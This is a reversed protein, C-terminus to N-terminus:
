NEKVKEYLKNIKNKTYDKLLNVKKAGDFLMECSQLERKLDITDNNDINAIQQKISSLKEEYEEILSNSLESSHEPMEKEVVKEVYMTDKYIYQVKNVYVTDVTNHKKINKNKKVEEIATTDLLNTNFNYFVIFNDQNQNCFQEEIINQVEKASNYVPYSIGSISISDNSNTNYFIHFKSKDKLIAEFANKDIHSKSTFLEKNLIVKNTFFDRRDKQMDELSYTDMLKEIKALTGNSFEFTYLSNLNNINQIKADPILIKNCKTKHIYFLEYINSSVKNSNIGICSDQISVTIVIEAEDSQNCGWFILSIAIISFFYKM